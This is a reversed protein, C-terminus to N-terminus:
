LVICSSIIFLLKRYNRYDLTKVTIVSWNTVVSYLLVTCEGLTTELTKDFPTELMQRKEEPLGAAPGGEGSSEFTANNETDSAATTNLAATANLIDEFNAQTSLTKQAFPNGYFSVCIRFSLRQLVLGQGICYLELLQYFLIVYVM